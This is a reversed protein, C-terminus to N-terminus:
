EQNDDSDGLPVTSHEFTRGYKSGTLNIVNPTHLKEELQVTTPVKAYGYPMLDHLLKQELAVLATYAMTSYAPVTNGLKDKRVRPNGLEDHTLLNIASRIKKHLQILKSLPDFNLEALRKSANTTTKRRPYHGPQCVPQTGDNPLTPMIGGPLVDRLEKGSLTIENLELFDEINLNALDLKDLNEDRIKNRSAIDKQKNINSTDLANESTQIESDMLLRKTKLGNRTVLMPKETPINATRLRSVEDKEKQTVLPPVKFSVM